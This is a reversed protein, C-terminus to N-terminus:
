DLRDETKVLSGIKCEEKKEGAIGLMSIITIKKAIQFFRAEYTVPM